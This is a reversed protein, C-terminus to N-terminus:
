QCVRRARKDLPTLLPCSASAKKTRLSNPTQSVRRLRKEQVIKQPTSGGEYKYFELISPSRRKTVKSTNGSSGLYPPPLDHPVSQKHM